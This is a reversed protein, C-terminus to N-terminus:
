NKEGSGVLELYLYNKFYVFERTIMSDKFGMYRRKM